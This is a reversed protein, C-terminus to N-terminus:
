PRPEKKVFTPWNNAQDFPDFGAAKALAGIHGVGRYRRRNPTSCEAPIEECFEAALLWQLAAEARPTIEMEAGDGGFSLKAKPGNLYAMGFIIADMPATM